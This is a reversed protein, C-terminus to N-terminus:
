SIWIMEHWIMVWVGDRKELLAAMGCGSLPASISSYEVVAMEGDNSIGPCTFLYYGSYPDSEDTDKLMVYDPLKDMDLAYTINNASNYHDILSDSGVDDHQFAIHLSTCNTATSTMDYVDVTEPVQERIISDLVTSIIAHEENGLMEPGSPDLDCSCFLFLIIIPVFLLFHKM